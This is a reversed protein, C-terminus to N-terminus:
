AVEAGEAEAASKRTRRVKSSRFALRAMEAALSNRALKRREAPGLRSDPDVLQEHRRLKSESIKAAHTERAGPQAWRTNAAVRARIKRETPSLKSPL